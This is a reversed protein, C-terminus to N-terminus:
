NQNYLIEPKKLKRLADNEDKLLGNLDNYAQILKIDNNLLNILVNSARENMREVLDKAIENDHIKQQLLKAIKIVLYIQKEM